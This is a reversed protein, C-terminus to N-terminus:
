NFYPLIEEIRVHAEIHDALADFPDKEQTPPTWALGKRDCLFAVFAAAVDPSTFLGHMYTGILLGDESVVGEGSFAERIDERCTTGM